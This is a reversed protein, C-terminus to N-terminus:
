VPLYGLDRLFQDDGVLLGGTHGDWRDGDFRHPLLGVERCVVLGALTGWSHVVSRSESLWKVLGARRGEALWCLKLSTSEMREVEYGHRTLQDVHAALEPEKDVWQTKVVATRTATTTDRILPQDGVYCGHGALASYLLGSAPVFVLGVTPQDDVLIALSTAYRTSSRAYSTSGDLADLVFRVRSGPGTTDWRHEHSFHEEALIPALGYCEAVVVALREELRWELSAVADARAVAGPQERALWASETCLRAILEGLQERHLPGCLKDLWPPPPVM